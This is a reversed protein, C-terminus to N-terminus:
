EERKRRKKKVGGHGDDVEGSAAAKKRPARDGGADGEAEPTAIPAERMDFGVGTMSQKMYVKARLKRSNADYVRLWRDLGAAALWGESPHRALARVGGQAGKYGGVMAGGQRLDFAGVAGAGTAAFIRSPGGPPEACVCAIRCEGFDTRWVPRRSARTDYLRVEHRGTGVAVVNGGEHGDLFAASAVYPVPLPLPWTFKPQKAVWVREGTEADFIGLDNREGGAALRALGNTGCLASVPGKGAAFAVSPEAECALQAGAEGLAGDVSFRQM